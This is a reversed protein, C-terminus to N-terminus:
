PDLRLQWTTETVWPRFGLRENVSRIAANSDANASRVETRERRERLAWLLMEAKLWRALGRGRWGPDVGTDRQLLVHDNNPDREMETYAVLRHSARERALLAVRRFGLAFSRRDFERVSEPTIVWDEEELADRPAAAVTVQMLRAVELLEDEGYPDPRWVLEVDPSREPGEDCWAELLGRDAQGLRLRYHREVSGVSAGLARAFHSGPLEPSPEPGTVTGTVLRRGARRVSAAAEAFLRRGLGRRRSGPAVTVSVHAAHANDETLRVMSVAQGVVVHDLLAWWYTFGFERASAQEAYFGRYYGVPRPADGPFREAAGANQVAVLEALRRESVVAPDFSEVVVGM